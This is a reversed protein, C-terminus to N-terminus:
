GKHRPHSDLDQGVVAGGVDAGVPFDLRREQLHEEGLQQPQEPSSHFSISLVYILPAQTAPTKSTLSREGGSVIKRLLM